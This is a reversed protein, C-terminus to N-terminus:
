ANGVIAVGVALPLPPLRHGILGEHALLRRAPAVPRAAEDAPPADARGPRIVRVAREGPELRRAPALKEQCLVDVPQMLRGAAGFHDVQVPPEVEDAAHPALLSRRAVFELVLEAPEVGAPEPEVRGIRGVAVGIELAGVKGGERNRGAPAAVAHQLGVDHKEALVNGAIPDIRGPPM